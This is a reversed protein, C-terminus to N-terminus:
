AVLDAIELGTYSGLAEHSYLLDGDAAMLASKIEQRDVHDRSPDGRELILRGAGGKVADSTM